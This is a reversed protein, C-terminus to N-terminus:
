DKTVVTVLHVPDAISNSEIWLWYKAANSTARQGDDDEIFLWSHDCALRFAFDAFHTHNGVSLPFERVHLPDQPTVRDGFIAISRLIFQKVEPSEM